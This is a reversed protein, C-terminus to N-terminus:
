SWVDCSYRGRTRLKKLYDHASNEDLKGENMLAEKLANDVDHAM